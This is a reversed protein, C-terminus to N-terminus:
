RGEAERLRVYARFASAVAGARSHCDCKHYLRQLYSRVTAPRINLTRAIDDDSQGDALCRLAELLKGSQKLKLVRAIRKWDANAVWEAPGGGTDGGGTHGGAGSGVHPPSHTLPHTPSPTPLDPISSDLMRFGGKQTRVSPQPGITDLCRGSYIFASASPKAHASFGLITLNKEASPLPM